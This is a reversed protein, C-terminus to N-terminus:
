DRPRSAQALRRRPRGGRQRQLKRVHILTGPEAREDGSHARQWNELEECAFCVTTDDVVYGGDNDPHTSEPLYHGNVCHQSEYEALAQTLLFDTEGWRQLGFGLHRLYQSPPVQWEKATRLITM